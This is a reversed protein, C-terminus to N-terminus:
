RDYAVGGSRLRHGGIGGGGGCVVAAPHAGIRQELANAVDDELEMGMHATPHGHAHVAREIAIEAEVAQCAHLQQHADLLCKARRQGLLHHRAGLRRSVHQVRQERAARARGTGRGELNPVHV